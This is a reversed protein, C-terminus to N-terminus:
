PAHYFTKVKWNWIVLFPGIAYVVGGKSGPLLMPTISYGHVDRVSIFAADEELGGVVGGMREAQLMQDYNWTDQRNLYNQDANM